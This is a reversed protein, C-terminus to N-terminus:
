IVHATFDPQVSRAIARMKAYDAELYGESCFFAKQGFCREITEFMASVNQFEAIHDTEDYIVLLVEGFFPSEPECIVVYFDGGGNAFIPLWSQHWLSHTSLSRYVTVAKELNMWYFGPFFDTKGLLDKWPTTATGDCYAYLRVLDRPPRLGLARIQAEVETPSLGPRRRDAILSGCARLHDFIRDVATQLRSLMPTLNTRLHHHYGSVSNIM